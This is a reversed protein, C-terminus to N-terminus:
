ACWTNFSCKVWQLRNVWVHTQLITWWQSPFHCRSFPPWKTEVEINQFLTITCIYITEGLITCHLWVSWNEGITNRWLQHNDASSRNCNSLRSEDIHLFWKDFKVKCINTQYCHKGIYSVPKHEGHARGRKKQLVRIGSLLTWPALMPGMQTRDAGSPGWTSGM